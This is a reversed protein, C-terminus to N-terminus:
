PAHPGEPTPAGGGGFPAAPHKVPSGGGGQAPAPAPDPSPAAAPVETPDPTTAQESAPAPPSSAPAELGSGVAHATTEPPPPAAVAVRGSARDVLASTWSSAAEVEWRWTGPRLHRFVASLVADTLAVPRVVRDVPITGSPGAATLVVQLRAPSEVTPRFSGSSSIRLRLEGPAHAAARAQLALRPRPRPAAEPSPDAAPTVTSARSRTPQESSGTLLPAAAIRAAVALWGLAAVILISARSTAINRRM